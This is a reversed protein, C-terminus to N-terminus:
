GSRDAEGGRNPSGPRTGPVGALPTSLGQPRLRVGEMRITAALHPRTDGLMERRGNYRVDLFVRAEGEGM